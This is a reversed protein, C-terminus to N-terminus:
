GESDSPVREFYIPLQSWRSITSVGVNLLHAASRQTLGQRHLGYEALAREFNAYKDRVAAVETMFAALDAGDAEALKAAESLRTALVDFEHAIDALGDIPTERETSYSPTGPKRAMGWAYENATANACM